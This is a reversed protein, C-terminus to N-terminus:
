GIEWVWEYHIYQTEDEYQVFNLRWPIEGDNLVQQIKDVNPDFEQKTFYDITGQISQCIKKNDGAQSDAEMDEAWVIYKDMKETANYHYTNPTVTLMLDRIKQIKTNM